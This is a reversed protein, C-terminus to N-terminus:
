LSSNQFKVFNKIESVRVPLKLHWDSSNQFAHAVKLLQGECFYNGILQLGVPLNDQDFGCPISMAPLGALNVGITYIDSLYMELPDLTKKDFKWAATPAVPGMIVDCNMFANQFDQAILRRLKQAQCYYAEYHGHSLIYNGLMIRNKVEEGFGQSRTQFYMDQLHICEQARFGYRVGDYRSLNSAAEATVLVYYVPLSLETKPLSIEIINAGLMQYHNLAEQIKGAVQKSLGVAFYEKPCGIKLGFLPKSNGFRDCSTTFDEVPYRITSIDNADFGVIYTLMQACDLANQAIIGGQDFSSAYAIMGYRSVRGYTPKIGTVGCMSAPQRISGGTDSATAACVIRAAVAAASGGSSGGPIYKEDWPNKVPGFFSNENSSGMAFEDMNLKGICVAGALNLKKVITADFPSMYHELMKSGATTPWDKTVFLDKHAIPLGLLGGKEGSRLRQDAAAAEKLTREENISIFINLSVEDKARKLSYEALETASCEGNDLLKRFDSFSYNSM